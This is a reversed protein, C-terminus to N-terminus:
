TQTEFAVVGQSLATLDVCGAVARALKKRPIRGEWIGPLHPFVGLIPVPLFDALVRRNTHEAADARGTVNNLVVGLLKIGAGLASEVTLLTHNITGLHLTAVILMPIDLRGALDRILLNRWVPVMLGGAGEVITLTHRESIIEYLTVIRDPDIEVGELEAAIGPALPQRLVYPVIETM